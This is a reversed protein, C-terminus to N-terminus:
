VQNPVLHCDSIHIYNDKSRGHSLSTTNPRYELVGLQIGGTVVLKELLNEQEMSQPDFVTWKSVAKTESTSNGSLNDFPLTYIIHPVWQIYM